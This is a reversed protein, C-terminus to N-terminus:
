RKGSPVAGLARSTSQEMQRFLWSLYFLNQLPLIRRLARVDSEHMPENSFVHSFTDATAGRLDNLTGATPGLVADLWNRAAYRSIPKGTLASLGIAGNTWQEAFHNVQFLYAVLGSADISNEVWQALNDPQEKGNAINRLYVSMAGMAMMSMMGILVGADREQLGALITRQVTAMGFSQFQGALAGVETSMWLPKDQGPTIIIRDVDRKVAARLAEVAHRINPDATNWALTNPHFVTSGITGPMVQGHEAFQQAIIEAHRQDISSAALKEIDKASAKGEAVRQAAQVIKKITVVGAVSKWGANWHNMGTIFGFKETGWHLMREFKSYRGYDDLVDAILSSRTGLELDLATGALRVEESTLKLAKMNDIMPLFADAFQAKVGHVAMIRMSDSLASLTMNGLHSLFNWQRIGRGLRVLKSSPDSTNFRGMLRDRMAELDDIGERLFGKEGMIRESAKQTKAASALNKAEESIKARLGTMELDGFVAHMELQPVVTRLYYRAVHRINRELFEEIMKDPIRLTRAKLPGSISAPLDFMMQGDPHGLINEIAKHAIDDVADPELSVFEALKGADEGGGEASNLVAEARVQRSEIWDTIIKKFEGYRKAIMDKNYVRSLYSQGEDDWVRAATTPSFEIAPAASPHGLADDLAKKIAARGDATPTAGAQAAKAALFQSVAEDGDAANTVGMAELQTRFDEATQHNILAESDGSRVVPKGAFDERIADLIDNITPRESTQLFGNEWARLALDDLRQGNKSILFPRAKHKGIIQLVDGGEDKIGGGAVIWPILRQGPKTGKQEQVFKHMGRVSEIEQPTVGASHEAVARQVAELLPPHVRDLAEVTADFVDPSGRTGLAREINRVLKRMPDLAKHRDLGPFKKAREAGEAAPEGGLVEKKLLGLKVAKKATPMFVNDDYYKAAKAVEPIDHKNFRVKSRGVEEWFADERLPKGGEGKVRKVYDGFIADTDRVAKGEIASGHQAIRTEVAGGLPATTEGKANRTLGLVTEALQTAGERVSPIPSTLSRILPDQRMVWRLPATVARGIPNEIQNVKELGLMPKLVAPSKSEVAQAGASQGEKMLTDLGGMGFPDAKSDAPVKLVAELNASVRSFERSALGSAGAGLLAGLVISGGVAAVSQELPREYQLAQLGTEHAATIGGIVAGTRAAQTAAAALKAGQLGKAVEGGIPILMTPDLIGALLMAGTGWWGAEEITERDKREAHIRDAIADTEAQSRSGVFDKWNGELDTGKITDWPNHNPDAKFVFDRSLADIAAVVLNEQRFAAALVSRKEPKQTTVTTTDPSPAGLFNVDADFEPAPLPEGTEPVDLSDGPASPQRLLPPKLADPLTPAQPNTAALSDADPTVVFGTPHGVETFGLDEKNYTFPM